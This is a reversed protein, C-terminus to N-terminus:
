KIVQTSIENHFLFGVWHNTSPGETEALIKGDASVLVVKSHTGGSSSSPLQPVVSVCLCFIYTKVYVSSCFPYFCRQVNM